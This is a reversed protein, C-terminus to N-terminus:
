TLGLGGLVREVSNQRRCERDARGFASLPGAATCSHPVHGRVFGATIGDGQEVTDPVGAGRAIEADELCRQCRLRFPAGDVVARPVTLVTRVDHADQTLVQCMPEVAADLLRDRVAFPDHHREPEGLCPM